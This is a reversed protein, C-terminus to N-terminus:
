EDSLQYMGYERPGVRLREVLRSRALLEPYFRRLYDDTGGLEVLAYRAGLREVPQDDNALGAMPPACPLTNDLSVGCAAVGLVLDGHPVIQELRRAAGTLTSERRLAWRAYWWGDWVLTALLLALVTRHLLPKSRTASWGYGALGCLAPVLAVWYRSPSYPLLLLGCSCVTWTLCLAPAPALRRHFADALAILGGPLAALVLVPAIAAIERGFLNNSLIRLVAGAEPIRGAAYFTNYAALADRHPLYWGLAYLMLALGLGCGYGLTVQRRPLRRDLLLLALLPAPVWLLALSKWVIAAGALVGAAPAWWRGGALANRWCWASAVLVVVMGPELLGLRSYQFWTYNTAWLLAALGAAGSGIDRRLLSWLLPLAATALVVNIARLQVFGTGFVAFVAYALRDWLPSVLRNDWGGMPAAGTLAQWRAVHSYLGEDTFPAGSWSLDVAPDAGLWILRLGLAFAILAFLSLRVRRLANRPTANIGPQIFFREDQAPKRAPLIKEAPTRQVNM